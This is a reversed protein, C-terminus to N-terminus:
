HREINKSEKQTQVTSEKQDDKTSKVFSSQTDDQPLNGLQMQAHQAIMYSAVTEKGVEDITLKNTSWMTGTLLYHKYIGIDRMIFGYQACVPPTGLHKRMSTGVIRPVYRESLGYNLMREMLDAGLGDRQYQPLIHLSVDCAELQGNDIKVPVIGCGGLLKSDKDYVGCYGLKREENYKTLEQYVQHVKECYEDQEILEKISNEPNSSSQVLKELNELGFLSNMWSSTMAVKPQSVISKFEEFDEKSEPNLPRMYVNGHKDNKLSVEYPISQNYWTSFRNKITDNLLNTHKQVIRLVKKIQM